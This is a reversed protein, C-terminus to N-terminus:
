MVINKARSFMGYVSSPVPSINGNYTPNTALWKARDEEMKQVSKFRENGGDEYFASFDVSRGDEKKVPIELDGKFAEHKQKSADTEDSLENLINKYLEM